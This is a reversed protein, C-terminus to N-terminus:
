VVTIRGGAHTSPLSRAATASVMRPLNHLDPQARTQTWKQVCENVKIIGWVSKDTPTRASKTTPRHVERAAPSPTVESLQRLYRYVTLQGEFVCWLIITQKSFNCKLQSANCNRLDSRWIGTLHRRLRLSEWRRGFVEWFFVYNEVRILDGHSRVARYETVVFRLVELFSKLRRGVRLSGM